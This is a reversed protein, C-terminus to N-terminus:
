TDVDGRLEHSYVRAEIPSGQLEVTGDRPWREEVEEVMGVRWSEAAGKRAELMFADLGRELMQMDWGRAEMGVYSMRFSGLEGERLVVPNPRVEKEMALYSELEEDRRSNRVAVLAMGLNLHIEDSGRNQEHAENFYSLALLPNGRSLHFLGRANYYCANLIRQYPKPYACTSRPYFKFKDSLNRNAAWHKLLTKLPDHFEEHLAVHAIGDSFLLVYEHPNQHNLFVRSIAAKREKGHELARRLDAPLEGGWEYKEGQKLLMIWGESANIAVDYIKGYMGRRFCGFFRTSSMLSQLREELTWPLNAWRYEKLECVDAFFSGSKPGFTVNMSAVCNRKVKAANKRALGELHEIEAYSNSCARVNGESTLTHWRGIHSLSDHGRINFFYKKRAYKKYDAAFVDPLGYTETISPGVPRESTTIDTVSALYNNQCGLFAFQFNSSM